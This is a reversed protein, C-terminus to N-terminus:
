LVKLGGRLTGMTQLLGLVEFIQLSFENGLYFVCQSGCVFIVYEWYQICHCLIVM